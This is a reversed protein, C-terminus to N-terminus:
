LMTLGNRYPRGRPTISTLGLEGSVLAVKSFDPYFSVVLDPTIWELKYAKFCIM